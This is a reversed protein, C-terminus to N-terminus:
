ERGFVGSRGEYWTDSFLVPYRGAMVQQGNRENVYHGRRQM